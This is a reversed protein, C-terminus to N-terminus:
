QLSSNEQLDEEINLQLAYKYLTDLLWEPQISKSLFADAGAKLLMRSHDVESSMVVVIPPHRVTRLRAILDEMRLGPLERDILVLDCDTQDALELLMHGDDAEGDLVFDPEGDLFQKIM